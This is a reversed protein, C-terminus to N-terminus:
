PKTFIFKQDLNGQDTQLARTSTLTKGDSSLSWTEKVKVSMGGFSLARNLLL